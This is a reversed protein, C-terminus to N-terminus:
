PDSRRLRSQTRSHGPIRGDGAGPGPSSDIWGDQGRGAYALPEMSDPRSDIRPTQRFSGDGHKRHNGSQCLCSRNWGRSARGSCGLRREWSRLWGPLGPHLHCSRASTGLRSGPEPGPCQDFFYFPGVGGRRDVYPPCTHEPPTFWQDNSHGAGTDVCWDLRGNRHVMQRASAAYDACRRNRRSWLLRAFAWLRDRKSERQPCDDAILCVTLELLVDSRRHSGGRHSNGTLLPRLSDRCRHSWAVVGAANHAQASAEEM